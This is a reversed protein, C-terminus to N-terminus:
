VRCPRGKRAIAAKVTPLALDEARIQYPAGAVVQVAPLVGATILRRIVHHTVGVAKAAERM